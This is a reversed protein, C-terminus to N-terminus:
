TSYRRFFDDEDVTKRVSVLRGGPWESIHRERTFVMTEFLVPPGNGWGHDLGLFVTSVWYLETETQAVVRKDLNGRDELWRGWTMLDVVVTEHNDDLIYHKIEYVL